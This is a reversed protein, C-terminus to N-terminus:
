PSHPQTQSVTLCYRPQMPSAPVPSPLQQVAPYRDMARHSATVIPAPDATYTYLDNLSNTSTGFPTTVQVTVPVVFSGTTSPPSTATISTDSNVTFPTTNAVGNFLVKTADTFSTGTITVTTGGSVPGHSPALGTVIPAPDATYTYLDNLSNTSTGFPTTVQVTVPGVFSGTTSPPSTATISTDSNVTFPTTNAVGNFLVTTADTFSTGTITVTTGGSVPGQNPALGTVAPAPDATYTYLDYLSNTSTGSPTTVQVTVAGVLSGTTSPPSTATISTDSNVTFPTTVAVGNFLVKTADTFSTGTITVTTGGSVPGQSPALGTVTPPPPVASAPVGIGAAFVVIVVTCLLFLTRNSFLGTPKGM